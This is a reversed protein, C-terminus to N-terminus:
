PRVRVSFVKSIPAGSASFAFVRVRYTGAKLLTGTLRGTTEDLELGPPIKGAIAFQATRAEKGTVPFKASYLRDVKGAPLGKGKAFDILPLVTFSWQVSLKAGTSDTVNVTSSFKGASTAAGTVAGTTTNLTIGPPLAGTSSFTYPARGGVAKVGTTLPANVTTKATWGTTPPKKGVLSQLELPALVFISLGRTDSTGNGNAQVTFNFTGSQTPTGSIVGNSALTLGAPLAGGALTWANVTDGSAQLAPATYAQSLNADPLSPTTVTLKPKPPTGGNVNITYQQDSFVGPGKGGIGCTYSVTIFFTFSGSQTPTGRAVGEDSSLSLGPPLGGSSVRFTPCADGPENLTFEVSYSQGVTATPCVMGTTVDGRCAAEAFDSAPAAATAVLVAFCAVAVATVVRLSRM